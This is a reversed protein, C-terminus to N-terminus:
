GSNRRYDINDAKREAASRLAVWFLTAAIFTAVWLWRGAVLPSYISNYIWLAAVIAMILIAVVKSWWTAHASSMGNAKRNDLQIDVIPPFRVDAEVSSLWPLM